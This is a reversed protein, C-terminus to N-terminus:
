AYNGRNKVPHRYYLIRLFSPIDHCFNIYYGAKESGSFCCQDGFQDLFYERALLDHKHFVFETFDSDIAAKQLFGANLDPFDVASTDAACQLTIKFFAEFLDNLGILRFPDDNFRGTDSFEGIDQPCYFGHVSQFEGAVGGDHVAVTGLDIVPVELFEEIILNRSGCANNEGTSLANGFLLKCIIDGDDPFQIRIGADDGCRPIFEASLGDEIRHGSTGVSERLIEAFILIIVLVFVFMMMVVIMILILFMFVMMVVIMVVIFIFMFVMMVVMILILLVLVVMVMMFVFIYIGSKGFAVADMDPFILVLMMVMVVMMVMPFMIRIFYEIGDTDFGDVLVGFFLDAFREGTKSFVNDTGLSDNRIMVAFPQEEVINRAVDVDPFALRGVGTKDGDDALLNIDRQHLFQESNM